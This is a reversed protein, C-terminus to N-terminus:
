RDQYGLLNEHSRLIQFAKEPDEAGIMSQYFERNELLLAMKKLTTLHRESDDKSSVLLVVLHVPEGDLADYDIGRRSIGLAGGIGRVAGTKGHPLAIGNKIGTSMKEERERIAALIEDRDAGITRDSVLLDVLEEFVEEKDEAELDTKIRSVPFIDQLLM